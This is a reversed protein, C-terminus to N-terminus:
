RSQVAQSVNERTEALRRQVLHRGTGLRRAVDRVDYGELRLVVADIAQVNVIRLSSCLRDFWEALAPLPNGDAPSADRGHFRLDDSSRGRVNGVADNFDGGDVAQRILEDLAECLRRGDSLSSREEMDVRPWFENWVAVAIAASDIEFQLPMDRVRRVEAMLQQLLPLALRIQILDSEDTM